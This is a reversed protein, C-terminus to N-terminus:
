TYRFEFKSVFEFKSIGTNITWQVVTNATLSYVIIEPM